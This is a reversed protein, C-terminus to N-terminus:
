SGAQRAKNKAQLSRRLLQKFDDVRSQRGLASKPLILFNTERDFVLVLVRANELVRSLSRWTMAYGAPQGAQRVTIRESNALVTFEQKWVANMRADYLPAFLYAFLPTGLGIIAVGAPLTLDDGGPLLGPVFVQLALYVLGLAGLGALLRLRGSHLYRLRHASVIDDPDFKINLNFTKEM